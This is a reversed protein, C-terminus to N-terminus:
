IVNVHTKLRRNKQMIETEYNSYCETETNEINDIIEDITDRTKTLSDKLSKTYKPYETSHEFIGNQTLYNTNNLTQNIRSTHLTINYIYMFDINKIMQNTTMIYYIGLLDKVKTLEMRNMPENYTTSTCEEITEKCVKLFLPTFNGNIFRHFISIQEKLDCKESISYVWNIVTNASVTLPINFYCQAM